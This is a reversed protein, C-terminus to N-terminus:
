RRTEQMLGGDAEVVLCCFMVLWVDGGGARMVMVRGFRRRLFGDEEADEDGDGMGFDEAGAELGCATM